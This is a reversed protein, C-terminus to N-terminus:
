AGASAIANVAEAITELEADTVAPHVPLSLCERVVQETVPLSATRRYAPLRHTPIPYYIGTGVGRQALQEAFADRDHGPIRITYQHYVHKAGTAVSPTVVGRLNADLFAANQQRRLTWAELQRLQVRGLAAHIDTMRNNFGVVENEYRRQQGQNRLLRVGRAIEPDATSVM